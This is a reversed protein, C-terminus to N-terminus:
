SDLTEMTALATRVASANVVSIASTFIITGRIWRSRRPNKESVYLLPLSSRQTCLQFEDLVIMGQAPLKARRHMKLNGRELLLFM